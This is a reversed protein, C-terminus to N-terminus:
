TFFQVVAKSILYVHCNIQQCKVLIIVQNFAAPHKVDVRNLCVRSQDHNSFQQLVVHKNTKAQGCTPQGPKGVIYRNSSVRGNIRRISTLVSM